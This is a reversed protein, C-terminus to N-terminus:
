ELGREKRKMKITTPKSSSPPLFKFFKVPFSLSSVPVPVHSSDSVRNTYRTERAMHPIPTTPQLIHRQWRAMAQPICLALELPLATNALFKATRLSTDLLHCSRVFVPLIRRQSYRKHLTLPPTVMSRTRRHLLM